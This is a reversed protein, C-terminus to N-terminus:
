IAVSKEQRGVSISRGSRDHSNLDRGRPLSKIASLKNIGGSVVFGIGIWLFPSVKLSFMSSSILMKISFFIVLGHALVRDPTALRKPYISCMIMIVVLGIWSHTVIIYFMGADPIKLGSLFLNGFLLDSIEAHLILYGTWSLRGEFTDAFSSTELVISLLCSAAIAAPIYYVIVSTKLRRAIMLYVIIFASIFTATRSESGISGIFFLTLFLLRDTNKLMKWYAICFIFAVIIFNGFSVPELFISSLRHDSLFNLSFRGRYGDTTKYLGAEEGTPADGDVGRTQFYYSWPNFVSTYLSPALIELVSVSLVVLATIRMISFFTSKNLGMGIKWFVIAIVFDRFPKLEFKQNFATVVVTSVLFIICVYLFLANEGGIRLNRDFRLNSILLVAAASIILIEGFITYQPGLKTVHANIIALLSNFLLVALLISTAVTSRQEADDTASTSTTVAM